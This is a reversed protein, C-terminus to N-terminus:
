FQKGHKYPRGQNYAFKELIAGSLDLGLWQALDMIRIIGDALEVELMSRDPLHDDMLNKRSGELGESIESHILAIKQGIIFKQVAQCNEPDTNNLVKEADEWFGKSVVSEHIRSQITNFAEMFRYDTESLGSM